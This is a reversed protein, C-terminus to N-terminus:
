DNQLGHITRAQAEIQQGQELRVSLFSFFMGIGPSCSTADISALMHDGAGEEFEECATKEMGASYICRSEENNM